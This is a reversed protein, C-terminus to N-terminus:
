QQWQPLPVTEKLPIAGPLTTPLFIAEFPLFPPLHHPPPITFIIM